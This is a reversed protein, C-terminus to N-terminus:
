GGLKEALARDREPEAVQYIMATEISSHGGRAQLEAITAGLQGYRTLGTLRLDHFRYGPLGASAAAPDFYSHLHKNSLRQTPDGLRHVLPSERNTSVHKDLHDFMREITKPPMHITRLSAPTKVDGVTEVGGPGRYTARRVHIVGAELDIDRRELGAIEGFRLACWAALDIVIALSGPMEDRMAQVQEPTAVIKEKERRVKKQIDLRTVPTTDIIERYVMWSFFASLVRLTNQRLSPSGWSKKRDWDLIMVRTVQDPRLKGFPEKLHARWKSQYGRITNPSAGRNELENLWELAYMECARLQPRSTAERVSQGAVVGQIIKAEETALWQRAAGKTTFTMPARVEFGQIRYRAQFRGSPLKRVSGFMSRSM